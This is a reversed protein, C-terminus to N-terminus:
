KATLATLVEQVKGRLEDLNSENKLTADAMEITSNLQQNAPDDSKAEKAESELFDEYSQPDSERKRAKIREFRIQSSAGIALLFFDNRSRLAEVEFPNRISDVVALEDKSLKELTREALIGSGFNKRMENGIVVLNSRTVEKGQNKLEDRLADSLSHYSYGLEQLVKAAEGKGAGNKGTLGIIM